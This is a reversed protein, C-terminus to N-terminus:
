ESKVSIIMVFDSEADGGGIGRLFNAGFTEMNGSDGGIVASGPDDMVVSTAANKVTFTGQARDYHSVEPELSLMIKGDNLKRATVSFSAGANKFTTQSSIYGYNGGHRVFYNTFPVSEGVFIKGPTNEMLRLFQKRDAKSNGRTDSASLEAFGGRLPKPLSAIVWGDGRAEWRLDAQAHRFSTQDIFEVTVLMNRTIRDLRAILARIKEVNAADDSVIIRNSSTDVSMKGFPGLLMKVPGAIQAASGYGIDFVEVARQASSVISVAPIALFVFLFLKIARMPDIIYSALSEPTIFLM